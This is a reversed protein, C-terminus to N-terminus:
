RRAAAAASGVAAIENDGFNQNLIGGIATTAFAVCIAVSAIIGSLSAVSVIVAIILSAIVMGLGIKWLWKALWNGAQKLKDLLWGENIQYKLSEGVLETAQEVADSVVEKNNAEKSAPDGQIAAEVKKPDKLDDPNKIGHSKAFQVLEKAAADKDKDSMKLVKETVMKKIKETQEPSVTGSFLGENLDYNFNEFTKVYKM